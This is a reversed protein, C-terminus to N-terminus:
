GSIRRVSDVKMSCHILFDPQYVMITWSTGVQLNMMVRIANPSAAEFRNCSVACGAYKNCGGDVTITNTWTLYARVEGEDDHGIIEISDGPSLEDLISTQKEAQTMAPTSM